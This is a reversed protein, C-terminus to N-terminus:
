ERDVRGARGVPVGLSQDAGIGRGCTPRVGCPAVQRSGCTMGSPVSKVVSTVVIGLFPYQQSTSKRSLDVSPPSVHLLLSIVSVIAAGGSTYAFVVNRSPM